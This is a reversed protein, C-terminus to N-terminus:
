TGVRCAIDIANRQDHVAAMPQQTRTQTSGGIGAPDVAGGQGPKVNAKPGLISRLILIKAFIRVETRDIKNTLAKTKDFDARALTGLTVDAGSISQIMQRTVEGGLVGLQVEGDEVFEGNVDIFEAVKIFAGLTDNLRLVSEELIPFAKEPAIQAYGSALIWCHMYDLYTKPSPNIMNQLDTMIELALDKDGAMNVELALANLAIIKQERNKMASIVKRAQAVARQREDKPLDKKVSSQLTELEAQENEEPVPEKVQGAIPASIATQRSVRIGTTTVRPEAKIKYKARVQVARAPSFKELLSANEIMSYTDTPTSDSQLLKQGYLDAIDRLDQQRFMPRKSLDKEIESLNESGTSLALRLESADLSDLSESKFRDVVAQALDAGKNPDKQYIKTLVDAFKSNFGRALSKKARETALSADKDAILELLTSEVGADGAAIQKRLKLNTVAQATNDFFDFAFEPDHEAIALAIQRRVGMAKTIDAMLRGRDSLNPVLFSMGGYYEDMDDPNGLANLQMDYGGILQRFDSIVSLFMTRAEREDYYWMLNALESSFSIRNELTHLGNVENMTDHLFEVAQKKVEEKEDTPKAVTSQAFAVQAFTLFILAFFIKHSM